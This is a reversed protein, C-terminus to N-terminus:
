RKKGSMIRAAKQLKKRETDRKPRNHSDAYERIFSEKESGQNQGSFADATMAQAEEKTVVGSDIMAYMGFARAFERKTEALMRDKNRGAGEVVRDANAGYRDEIGRRFPTENAIQLGTRQSMRGLLRLANQMHLNREMIDVSPGDPGAVPEPGAAPAEFDRVHIQGTQQSVTFLSEQNAPQEHRKAMLM